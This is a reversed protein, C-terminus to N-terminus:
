LISSKYCTDSLCQCTDAIINVSSNRHQFLCNALESDMYHWSSFNGAELQRCSASVLLSYVFEDYQASLM